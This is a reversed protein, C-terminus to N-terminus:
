ARRQNSDLATECADNMRGAVKQWDVQKDLSTKPRHAAVSWTATILQLAERYAAAEAITGQISCTAASRYNEADQFAAARFRRAEDTLRQCRRDDADQKERASAM